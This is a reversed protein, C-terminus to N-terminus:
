EGVYSLARNLVKDSLYMGARRLSELVPRAAPLRGRTKGLIVLGLTGRVPIGFTDACRRAQLDDIIGETGPFASCWSLVASEGSGLDWSQIRAPVPPTEIIEIWETDALSRAAVDGSGRRQIENAVAAPIVITPAILQLLDILGARALFIMPSANVAPREVM